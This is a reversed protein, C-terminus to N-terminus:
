KRSSAWVLGGVGLLALVGLMWTSAQLGTDGALPVSPLAGMPKGVGNKKIFPQSCGCGKAM